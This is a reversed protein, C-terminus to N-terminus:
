DVCTLTKTLLGAKWNAKWYKFRVKVVLNVYFMDQLLYKRNQLLGVGVIIYVVKRQKYEEVWSVFLFCFFCLVPVQPVSLLFTPLYATCITYYDSLLSSILM